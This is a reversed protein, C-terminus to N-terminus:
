RAVKERVVEAEVEFEGGVRVLTVRVAVCGGEVWLHYVGHPVPEKCSVCRDFEASM